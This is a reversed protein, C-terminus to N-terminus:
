LAPGILMLVPKKTKQGRSKKERKHYFVAHFYRGIELKILLTKDRGHDLFPLGAFNEHDRIHVQLGQLPGNLGTEGPIPAARSLLEPLFPLRRSIHLPDLINEIVTILVREENFYLLGSRGTM